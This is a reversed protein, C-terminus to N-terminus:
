KGLTRQRLENPYDTCIGSASEFQDILSLQEKTILPIICDGYLNVWSPSDPKYSLDHLWIEGHSILAMKDQSHVFYSFGMRPLIQCVDLNKCHLLIKTRRTELWKMSVVHKAEDHGLWFKDDIFRIDVEVFFGLAIAEDIYEPSNERDPNPGDINGRHSFIKM